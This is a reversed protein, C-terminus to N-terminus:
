ILFYYYYMNIYLCECVKEYVCLYRLGLGHRCKYLATHGKERKGEDKIEGSHEKRRNEQELLHCSHGCASNSIDEKTGAPM